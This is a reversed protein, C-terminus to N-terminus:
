WDGREWKKGDATLSWKGAPSRAAFKKRELQALLSHVAARSIKFRKSRAELTADPNKAVDLIMESQRGTPLPNLM